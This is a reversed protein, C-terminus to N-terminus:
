ASDRRFWESSFIEMERNSRTRLVVTESYDVEGTVRFAFLRYLVADVVDKMSASEGMCQVLKFFGKSDNKHLPMDAARYTAADNRIGKKAYKAAVCKTM